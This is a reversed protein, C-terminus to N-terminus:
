LKLVPNEFCEAVEWGEQEPVLHLGSTKQVSRPVEKPLSGDLHVSPPILVQFDRQGMSFFQTRVGTFLMKLPHLSFIEAEFSLVCPFNQM